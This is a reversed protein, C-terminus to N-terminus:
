TSISENAKIKEYRTLLLMSVLATIVVVWTVPVITGQYSHSVAGISLSTILLRFSTMLSSTTGKIDPLTEMGEPFYLSMMWNAGLAFVVMPATLLYPNRSAFLTALAFLVASLVLLKMGFRKIRIAGFVKLVRKFSLSGILWSILLAGQFFPFMTQSVGFEIPYLVSIISLFAIYASFMLSLVITIQWFPLCLFARKFDSLIQYAHFPKRKEKSLPEEFMLFSITLSILAMVAILSFNSRFGYYYNLIGGVFPALAMIVPIITNLQNVARMAKEKKFTDFMIATGLTFCGGSGLGQLFRGILMTEYRNAFVTLLSGIEFLVLAFLLPKRRGFADSIPGYFPGSLCIGIFNWTLLRQIAAKSVGFYAIMNPYAPLYIDTEVCAAIFIVIILFLIKIEARKM